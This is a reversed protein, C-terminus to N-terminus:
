KFLAREEPTMRELIRPDIPDGTYGGEDTPNPTANPAPTDGQRRQNDAAQLRRTWESPTGGSGFFQAAELLGTYATRQADRRNVLWERLEPASLERPAAVAMAMKLEQASLAGFTVSGIVDLGMRDMANQLSASEEDFRPLNNYVAGAAAGRDIANIADNIPRLSAGIRNADEMNARALDAIDVAQTELRKIEPSLDRDATLTGTRRAENIMREQEQYAANSDQVLDIAAQGAVVEGGVTRVILTGDKMTMITGSNDALMSSSQVQAPDIGGTGTLDRSRIMADYTDKGQAMLNQMGAVDEVPPLGFEAIRANFGAVDGSQVFPVAGVLGQRVEEAMADRENKSLTASHTQIARLEASEARSNAQTRVDMVQRTNQVGLAAEPGALAAYQGLAQEDGAMVAGGNTQMFQELANNRRNQNTLGAAATGEQIAQLANVGQGMMPINANMAAM